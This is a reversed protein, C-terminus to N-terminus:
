QNKAALSSEKKRKKKRKKKEKKREKKAKKREKKRRKKEQTKKKRKGRKEESSDSSDSNSDSNSSLDLDDDRKIIRFNASADFAPPLSPGVLTSRQLAAAAAASAAAAPRRVTPATFTPVGGGQTSLGPGPPREAPMPLPMPVRKPRVEVEVADEEESSSSSDDDEDDSASDPEFIAKFIDVSPAAVPTEKEAAKEAALAQEKVSPALGIAAEVKVSSSSASQFLVPGSSRSAERTGGAPAGGRAAAAGFAAPMRAGARRSASADPAAIPPLNFRKSLLKIPFWLTITRKAEVDSPAILAAPSAASQELPTSTASAFRSSLVGGGLRADLTSPVPGNAARQAPPPERRSRPLQKEGLARGRSSPSMSQHDRPNPPRPAGGRPAGGSSIGSGGDTTGWRSSGPVRPVPFRHFPVFNRPPAPPPPFRRGRTQKQEARVSEPVFKPLLGRPAASASASAQESAQPVDEIFMPREDDVRDGLIDFTPRATRQSQSAAGVYGLGFADDKLAVEAIHVDNPAVAVDDAGLRVTSALAAAVAEAGLSKRAGVGTGPRWGMTRLLRYGVGSYDTVEVRPAFSGGGSESGKGNAAAASSSSEPFAAEFLSGANWAAAKPKTPGTRASAAAPPAESEFASLFAAVGGVGASGGRPPRSAAAAARRPAPRDAIRGAAFSPRTVITRGLLPDDEEDMFDEPRRRKTQGGGGDGGSSRSSKFTSPAWGEESGCTNFHGASFGGTFAGHFRRLGTKGSPDIVIQQEVPRSAQEAAAARKRVQLEGLTSGLRPRSM